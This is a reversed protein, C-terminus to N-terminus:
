FQDADPDPRRDADRGAGACGVDRRRGGYLRANGVVGRASPWVGNAIHKRSISCAQTEVATMQDGRVQITSSRRSFADTLAVHKPETMGPSAGGGDDRGLSRDALASGPGM